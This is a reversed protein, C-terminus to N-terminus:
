KPALKHHERAPQTAAGPVPLVGPVGPGLRLHERLAPQTSARLLEEVRDKMIQDRQSRRQELEERLHSIQQELENLRYERLAQEANFQKSVAENLESILKTKEPGDKAQGLAKILRWTEVRADGEDMMAKQIDRPANKYRQFWPWMSRLALRFRMPNAEKSEMLRRYTEPQREKIAALLETEQEDTLKAGFAEREGGPAFNAGPGAAPRGERDKNERDKDGASMALPMALLLAGCLILTLRKNM